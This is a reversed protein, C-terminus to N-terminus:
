GERTEDLALAIAQEMPLARGEAWAAAFAGEGLAARAAALHRDYDAREGPALPAGIAERLADAAGFLRAAREAQDDDAAVGALGELGSAIGRQEGTRRYIGLSEKYFVTAEKYERQSRAVAALGELLWATDAHHGLQRQIELSEEYLARARQYDGQNRAVDGLSKLLCAIGYGDGMQRHIELSEELLARAGEYNGELNALEGLSCLPWARYPNDQDGSQRLITLIEEYLARAAQYDGQFAAVHGLYFLAGLTRNQIGLQRGIALAGELLERAGQYDGLRCAWYGARALARAREATPAEAGPLSLAKELRERAERLYGRPYWFGHLAEGLRLAAEADGRQMSWELAAELNGHDAGLDLKAQEAMTLHWDRHQDRLADAEESAQLKEHGYQRITELLRYRVEEGQEEAVVLSKDVLQGLLELVEWEEIGDGSCIGEAAALTWGGAFVSLRGLLVREGESLLEYSWDIAARLTQHRPLVTRSGGTLLRFRDSLRSAIQEVTLLKVRAAALEIALPIGDLQQCLQVAAAVNRDTVAFSPQIAVAREILLRVAEYRTLEEVPLPEQREPFSLSPVRYVSEGPVALVERSTALIQLRPCGRLLADALCACAAILHECNDLMLLMPRASLFSILTETLTRGPEERVGLVLAVTQAVLEPDSLPALDVVWAGGPYCDVREATVQLALRTKGCGGAGALTVLRASELMHQVQAIERERGIFSTLQVPLNHTRTNLSHLPPFQGPLDEVILQFLQEPRQLDKLRHAGLEVLDAGGPLHDRVLEHTAQSLLIQGGHGAALLRSLRNLPPGFYDGERAEATGTHLAMRVRLPGTEAWAEQQLARQAALAAALAAPASGFTAYIADGATKFIHGEHVAIAQHLLADHKKLATRMAEPHAEWLRTSGEIDTFLFTLTDGVPASPPLPSASLTAPRALAVSAPVQARRQAEQRLQQYLTGTEPAPSANLERHLLLRLDRYVQTMAAYNGQEALAQMLARQATERLPDVGVAQRLHREAVAPEGYALAHAALTELAGLFAQERLLREQFIWEETWGELLPGRYLAVAQELSAPDGRAIAQEFTLVDVEAGSLELRLTRTTPSQLRPAEDGLARRLDTLSNRLAALALPQGSDPWLVGALWSREVEGGARLTLLALLGQGKRSRLPPLPEGHLRIEVAGFLGITLPSRACEPASVVM